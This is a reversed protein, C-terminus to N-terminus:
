ARRRQVDNDVLAGGERGCSRAGRVALHGQHGAARRRHARADPARHERHPRPRRRLHLDERRPHPLQRRRRPTARPRARRRPQSGAQPETLAMTGTWEGRTCAAGHLTASCRRRRRVGRDPAGRGHHARRLRLARLNGAMLYPTRWRPSPSRCSSAASRSPGRPTRAARARGAARYLERMRPHVHVRGTRSARRRRTWRGTPRSCCRARSAAARRRAAARLDRALAGRLAAARVAREADLVEYLLFDVDRDDLLPNGTPTM